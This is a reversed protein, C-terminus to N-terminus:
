EAEIPGPQWLGFENGGQLYISFMGEDGPLATPWMAVQGGAAEAAETAAQVDTVRAYIRVVPGEVDGMPARVGIRGGDVLSAMRSGALEARREGFTVGHIVALAACTEDVDPTVIELYHVPVVNTERADTSPTSACSCLLLAFALLSCAPRTM